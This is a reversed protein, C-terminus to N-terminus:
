TVVIELEDQERPQEPEWERRLALQLRVRGAGVAAIELREPLSINDPPPGGPEASPSRGSPLRRVEVVGEPGDVSADWSYGTGGLGRLELEHRDGVSLTLERV